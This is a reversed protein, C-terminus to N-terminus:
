AQVLRKPIAQLFAHSLTLPEPMNRHLQTVAQEWVRIRHMGERYSKPVMAELAEHEDPFTLLAPDGGALLLLGDRQWALVMMLVQERVARYRAGARGDITKTDVEVEEDRALAKEEKTIEEKMGKLLAALLAAQAMAGVRGELSEGRLIRLVNSRAEGPPLGSQSSALSLRQCRSIVTPLLRQPQDTLLLFLTQGPPEELTKLFANASSANMCEAGVIIGAKWGGAFSTRQFDQQFTRMAEVSIMRSKKEPELRHIDPHTGKEVGRCGACIHCPGEAGPDKCFLLCLLRTALDQGERRVDGEILYAHALRGAAASKALYGYATDVQM